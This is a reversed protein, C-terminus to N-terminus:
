CYKYYLNNETKIKKNIEIRQNNKRNVLVKLYKFYNAKYSIQKDIKVETNDKTKRRSNLMYKIKDKNTDLSKNITETM